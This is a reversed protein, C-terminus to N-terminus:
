SVQLAKCIDRHGAEWDRKPFKWYAMSGNPVSPRDLERAANANAGDERLEFLAGYTKWITLAEMKVQAHLPEAAPVAPSSTQINRLTWYWIRKTTVRLHPQGWRASYEPDMRVRRTYTSLVCLLNNVMGVFEKRAVRVGLVLAWAIVSIFNSQAASLCFMANLRHDLGDKLFVSFIQVGQLLFISNKLHDEPPLSCLMRKCAIILAPILRLGAPEQDRTARIFVDSRGDALRLYYTCLSVATTIDNAPYHEAHAVMWIKDTFDNVFNDHSSLLPHPFVVDIAARAADPNSHSKVMLEKVSSHFMIQAVVSDEYGATYTWYYVLFHLARCEVPPPKGHVRGYIRVMMFVATFSIVARECPNHRGRELPLVDARQGWIMDIFEDMRSLLESACTRERQDTFPSRDHIDASGVVPYLALVLSQLVQISYNLDKFPDEDDPSFMGPATVIDMLVCPLKTEALALWQPPREGNVGHYQDMLRALSSILAQLSENERRRQLYHIWPVVKRPEHAVVMLWQMSSIGGARQGFRTAPAGVAVIVHPSANSM